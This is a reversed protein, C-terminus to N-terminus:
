EYDITTDSFDAWFNSCYRAGGRSCKNRRTLYYLNIGSRAKHDLRMDQKIRVDMKSNKAQKGLTPVGFELRFFWFSQTYHVSRLRVAKFDWKVERM